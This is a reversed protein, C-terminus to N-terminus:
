DHLFPIIHKCNGKVKLVVFWVLKMWGRQNQSATNKSDCVSITVTEPNEALQTTVLLGVVCLQSNLVSSGKIKM